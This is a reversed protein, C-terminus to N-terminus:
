ALCVAIASCRGPSASQRRQTAACNARLRSNRLARSEDYPTWSLLTFPTRDHAGMAVCRAPDSIRSRTSGRSQDGRERLSLPDPPSSRFPSPTLPHPRAFGARVYSLLFLNWRRRVVKKEILSVSLIFPTRSLYRVRQLVRIAFCNYVDCM